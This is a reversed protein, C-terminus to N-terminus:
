IYRYLIYSSKFNIEIDESKADKAADDLEDNGIIGPHSPTWLLKIIVDKQYLNEKINQVLPNKSYMQEISQITSLSDCCIVMKRLNKELIYEVAKLIAYLEATFISTYNTLHYKKITNQHKFAAPRTKINISFIRM